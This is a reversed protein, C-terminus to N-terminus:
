ASIGNVSTTRRIALRACSKESFHCREHRSHGRQKFVGHKSPYRGTLISARAPACVPQSCTAAKFMTAARRWADDLNPTLKMRTDPLAWVIAAFSIWFFDHRYETEDCKSDASGCDTRCNRRSCYASSEATRAPFAFLKPIRKREHGYCCKIRDRSHNGAIDSLILCKLASINASADGTQSPITVM